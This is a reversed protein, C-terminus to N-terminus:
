PTEESQHQRKKNVFVDHGKGRSVLDHHLDHLANMCAGHDKELPFVLDDGYKDNDYESKEVHTQIM